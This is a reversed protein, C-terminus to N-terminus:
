SARNDHLSIIGCIAEFSFKRCFRESLGLKSLVRELLAPALAEAHPM